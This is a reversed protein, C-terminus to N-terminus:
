FVSDAERFWALTLKAFGHPAVFIESYRPAHGPCLSEAIDGGYRRLTRTKYQADGALLAPIDTSLVVV